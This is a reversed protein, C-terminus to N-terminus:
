PTTIDSNVIQFRSDSNQSAITDSGNRTSYRDATASFHLIAPARRENWWFFTLQFFGSSILANVSRM